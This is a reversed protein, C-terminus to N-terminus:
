DHCYLVCSSDTYRIFQQISSVKCLVTPLRHFFTKALYDFYSLACDLFMQLETRTIYKVVFRSDATKSFAAGSKGGKADQLLLL